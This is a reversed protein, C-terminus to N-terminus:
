ACKIKLMLDLKCQQSRPKARAILDSLSRLDSYLLHLLQPGYPSLAESLQRPTPRPNTALGKAAAETTSTRAALSASRVTTAPSPHLLSTVLALLNATSAIIELSFRGNGTPLIPHRATAEIPHRAPAEIPHAVTSLHATSVLNVTNIARASPGLKVLAQGVSTLTLRKKKRLNVVPRDGLLLDAVLM